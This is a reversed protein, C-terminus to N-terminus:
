SADLLDSIRALLELPNEAFGFLAAVGVAIAAMALITPKNLRKM